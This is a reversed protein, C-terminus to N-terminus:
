TGDAGELADAHRDCGAKAAGPTEPCRLGELGVPDTSCLLSEESHCGGEEQGALVACCM